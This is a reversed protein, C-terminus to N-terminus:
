VCDMPRSTVVLNSQKVLDVSSGLGVKSMKSLLVKKSDLDWSPFM